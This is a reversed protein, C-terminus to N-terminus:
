DPMSGEMVVVDDEIGNAVCHGERSFHTLCLPQQAGKPLCHLPTDNNCHISCSVVYTHRKNYANRVCSGVYLHPVM